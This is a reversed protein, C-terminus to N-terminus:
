FRISSQLGAFFLQPKASNKQLGSLHYQVVPGAELQWTGRNIFAYQLSAFGAFINKRATAKDSYYINAWRDYQLANSHLLRGYSAGASLTLPLRTLPKFGISLPLELFGYRMTFDRLNSNSYYGELAVKGDTTMVATDITKYTGVKTQTSYYAYQLGITINWRSHIAKSMGIGAQFATGRKVPNASGVFGNYNGTGPSSSFDARMTNSGLIGDSFRSWGGRVTVMKQWGKNAAALKTKQLASDKKELPLSGNKGPSKATSDEPTLNNEVTAHASSPEMVPGTNGQAAQPLVDQQSPTKASLTNDKANAEKVALDLLLMKSETHDAIPQIPKNPAIASPKKVESKQHSLVTQAQEASNLKRISFDATAARSKETSTTTKTEATTGEELRNLKPISNKEDKKGADTSRTVVAPVSAADESSGEMLWWGAGGLLVLIFPIWFPFRRRKEPRIEKEIAKWVPESPTLRLEDLKEQVKKEFSGQM